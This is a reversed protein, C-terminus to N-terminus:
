ADTWEVQAPQEAGDMAYANGAQRGTKLESMERTMLSKRAALLKADEEDTKLIGALEENVKRALEDVRRRETDTLRERVRSWDAQYTRLSESVEGLTDLIGRRQELVDLLRQPDDATIASRQRHLLTHLLRCHGLQQDLLGILENADYVTETAVVNAENM